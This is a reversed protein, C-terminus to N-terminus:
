RERVRRTGSGIATIYVAVLAREQRSFSQGHAIGLSVAEMLSDRRDRDGEHREGDEAGGARRRDADRANVRLDGVPEPGPAGEGAIPGRLWGELHQPPQPELVPELSLRGGHQGRKVLAEGPAAVVVAQEREGLQRQEVGLATAASGMIQGGGDVRIREQKRTVVRRRSDVRRVRPEPEGVVDVVEAQGLAQAGLLALLRVDRRTRPRQRETAEGEGHVGGAEGPESIPQLM